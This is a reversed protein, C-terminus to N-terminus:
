IEAIVDLHRGSTTPNDMWWWEGVDCMECAQVFVSLWAGVIDYEEVGTYEL